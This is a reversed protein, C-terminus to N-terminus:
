LMQQSETGTRDAYKTLEKIWIQREILMHHWCSSVGLLSFKQSILFCFDTSLWFSPFLAFYCAEERQFNLKCVM